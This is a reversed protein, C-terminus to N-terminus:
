KIVIRNIKYVNDSISDICGSFCLKEQSEISELLFTVEEGFEKRVTLFGDVAEEQSSLQYEKPCAPSSPRQPTLVQPRLVPALSFKQVAIQEKQDQITLNHTDETVPYLIM